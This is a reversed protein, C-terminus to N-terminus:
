NIKRTKKDILLENLLINDQIYKSNSRIENLEEKGLIDIIIANESQISENDKKDEYEENKYRRKANNELRNLVIGNLQYKYEIREGADLLYKLNEMEEIIANNNDNIVIEYSNYYYEINYENKLRENVEFIFNKYQKKIVIEQLDKISMNVMIEKEIKLIFSKQQKTAKKHIGNICVTMSHNWFILSKNRLKDLTNELTNKLNRHTLSYWEIIVLKDIDTIKHLKDINYRFYNYNRNVMSLALLLKATSLYVYNELNIKAKQNILDLILLEIINGYPNYGRPIKELPKDRKSLIRIKNTNEVKEFEFYRALEKLQAKKQNGTGQKIGITSCIEKFNKYEKIHLSNIQEKTLEM